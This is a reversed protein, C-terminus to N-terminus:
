EISQNEILQLKGQELRYVKECYALTNLKHAIMLMTVEGKLKSLSSLLDAETQPDLASTAEDLFLFDPEHYLARAIGIRQRQGGSIRVGHEGVMTSRGHPLSSVFSSLQALEMAREVKSDDISEEPIGFAINMKISQDSLYVTQPVYGIRQQWAALHSNIDVGKISILGADPKLLGLLVDVFTSKGSGSEGIIGIAAGKEVVLSISDLLKEDAHGFSVEDVELPWSKPLEGTEEPRRQLSFSSVEKLITNAMSRNFSLAQGATLIRNASPLLRFVAAAFLGLTPLITDMSRDMAMSLYVILAFSVVAMSELLLRPVTQLTAKLHRMRTSARSSLTFETLIPQERGLLKIEKIGHLGVQLLRVRNGEEIELRRGWRYTLRNTILSLAVGIGGILAASGLTVVPELVLLLSLIGLIVFVESIAITLQYIADSVARVQVLANRIMDASNRNLHYAYNEHLYGAFLARSLNLEVTSVFISQFWALTGVFLSKVLYAIALVTVGFLALNDSQTIGISASFESYASPLAEPSGIMTIAPMVLGISMIELFMAMVMMLVLTFLRRKQPSTLFRWGLKLEDM